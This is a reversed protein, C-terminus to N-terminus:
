YKGFFFLKTLKRMQLLKGLGLCVILVIITEVICGVLSFSRIYKSSFYLLVKNVIVTSILYISMTNKGIYEVISNLRKLPIIRKLWKSILMVSISGFLGILFRYIDYYLQIMRLSNDKIISYGSTYIFVDRKFFVVLFVYIFIVAMTYEKRCIYKRIINEIDGKNYLYGLVFFPYMYKYLHFGYVDPVFFSVAFVVSYAIISDHFFLNCVIVILACWWIAWLFWPGNIFLLCLRKLMEITGPFGNSFVNIAM